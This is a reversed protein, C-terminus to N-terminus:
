LLLLFEAFNLKNMRVVQSGRFSWGQNSHKLLSSRLPVILVQQETEEISIPCELILLCPNPVPSRTNEIATTLTFLSFKASNKSRSYDVM